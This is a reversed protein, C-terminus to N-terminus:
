IILENLENLENLEDGDVSPNKLRYLRLLDATVKKRLELAKEFDIINKEIEARTLAIEPPPYKEIIEHLYEKFLVSTRIFRYRMETSSELEVLSSQRFQSIGESIKSKTNLALYTIFSGMLLGLGLFVLLFKKKIKMKVNKRFNIKRGTYYNIKWIFQEFLM